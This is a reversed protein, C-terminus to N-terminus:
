TALMQLDLLVIHSHCMGALFSCPCNGSKGGGTLCLFFLVSPSEATGLGPAFLCSCFVNNMKSLCGSLSPNPSALFSCFTADFFFFFFPMEMCSYFMLATNKWPFGTLCSCYLVKLLLTCTQSLWVTVCKSRTCVQVSSVLFEEM